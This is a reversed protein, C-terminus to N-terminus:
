AGIGEMDSLKAALAARLAERAAEDTVAEVSDLMFAEILMARAQNEPVGRARLYFLQDRDLDGATAGHACAVDDAYIELEPKADVEAGDALLLAKHLQHADTQQAARQVRTKAQFVGRARHDLVGKFTEASVTAPAAHDTYLTNDVLREGDGLYAGNITLSAAEGALLARVERRALAAGLQLVFGDYVAREDLRIATSAIHYSDTREHQLVYHGLRADAGVAIESVSNSFTAGVGAGVHSELVSLSAGEGVSLVLRPLCAAASESADNQALFILHLPAEVRAGPAVDIMWGDELAATNLAALPADTFGADLTLRDAVSEDEAQIAAAISRVRVGEPLADLQSLSPSVRGNVLVLRVGEGSLVHDPLRPADVTHAEAFGLRRLGRLDTFKWREVHRTPLGASDYAEAAQVRLKALADRREAAARVTDRFPDVTEQDSM